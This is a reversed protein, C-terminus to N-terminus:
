MQLMENGLDMTAKKYANLQLILEAASFSPIAGWSTLFYL